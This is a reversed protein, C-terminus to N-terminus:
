DRCGVFLHYVNKSDKFWISNIQLSFVAKKWKNPARILEAIGGNESLDLFIGARIDECIKM